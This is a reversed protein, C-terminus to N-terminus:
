TRRISVTAFSNINVGPVQGGNEVYDKIGKQGARFDIMDWMPMSLIVNKIVESDRDRLQIGTGQMYNIVGEVVPQFVFQKFADADAMQCTRSMKTFATGLGQVKFSDTGMTTMLHQLYNKITNKAESLPKLEEAHRKCMEDERVDLDFYKKLLEEITLDAM